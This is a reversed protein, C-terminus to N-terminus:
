SHSYSGTHSARQPYVPRRGPKRCPSRASPPRASRWPNAGTRYHVTLFPLFSFFGHFYILCRFKLANSYLNDICQQCAANGVAALNAYRVSRGAPIDDIRTIQKISLPNLDEFLQFFCFPATVRATKSKKGTQASDVKPLDIHPAKCHMISISM